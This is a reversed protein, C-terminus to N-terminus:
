FNIKGLQLNVKDTINFISCYNFLLEMEEIAQAAIQNATLNVDAKLKNVLEPGGRLKAYEGIRDAVDTPIKKEEILEKRM